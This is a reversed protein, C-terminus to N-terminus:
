GAASDSAFLVILVVIAGIAFVVAMALFAMSIPAGGRTGAQHDHVGLTDNEVQPLDTPNQQPM